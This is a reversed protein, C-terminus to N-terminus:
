WDFCEKITQQTVTRDLPYQNNVNTLVCFTDTVL